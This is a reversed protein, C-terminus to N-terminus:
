WCHFYKQNKRKLAKKNKSFNETCTKKCKSSSNVLHSSSISSKSSCNYWTKFYEDRLEKEVNLDKRSSRFCAALVADKDDAPMQKLDKKYITKYDSISNELPTGKLQHNIIDFNVINVNALYKDRDEEFREYNLRDIYTMLGDRKYWKLNPKDYEPIFCNKSFM